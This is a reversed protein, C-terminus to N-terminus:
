RTGRARNKAAVPTGSRPQRLGQLQERAYGAAILAIAGVVRRQGDENMGELLQVARRVRKSPHPAARTVAEPEPTTKLFTFISVRFFVCIRLATDLDANRMPPSDVYHSVWSSPKELFKALRIAAGHQYLDGDKHVRRRVFARLRESVEGTGRTREM